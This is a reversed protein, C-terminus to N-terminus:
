ADDDAGRDPPVQLSASFPLKTALERYRAEGRLCKVDRLNVLERKRVRTLVGEKLLRALLLVAASPGRGGDGSAADGWKWFCWDWPWRIMGGGGGVAGGGDGTAAAEAAMRRALGPPMRALLAQRALIATREEDHLAVLASCEADSLLGPVLVVLPSESLIRVANDSTNTSDSAAAARLRAAVHLWYARLLAPPASTSNPRLAAKFRATAAAGTIATAPRTTWFMGAMLATLAALLAGRNRLM